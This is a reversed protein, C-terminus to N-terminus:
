YIKAISAFFARQRLSRRCQPSEYADFIKQSETMVIDALEKMKPLTHLNDATMFAPSARKPASQGKGQTRMERIENENRECLTIDPLKGVFMPTPFLMLVKKETLESSKANTPSDVHNARLAL